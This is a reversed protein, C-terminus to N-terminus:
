PKSGKRNQRGHEDSVALATFTRNTEDLEAQMAELARIQLRLAMTYQERATM